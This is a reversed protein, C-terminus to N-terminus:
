RKGIQQRELLAMMNRTNGDDVAVALEDADDGVAVNPERGIGGRLDGIQHGLVCEYSDALADIALFSAPQKVVVPDFLQDDDVVIILADTEDGDGVHLFRCM